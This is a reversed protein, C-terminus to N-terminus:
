SKIVLILVNKNLPIHQYAHNNYKLKKVQWLTEREQQLQFDDYRCGYKKEMKLKSIQNISMSITIRESM